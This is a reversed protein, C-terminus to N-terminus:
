ITGTADQGGEEPLPRWYIGGTRKLLHADLLYRRLTEQKHFRRTIMMNVAAESYQKGAEFDDALWRLIVGREEHDMPIRKLRKGHQDEKLYKHLTRTEFDEIEQGDVVVANLDDLYTRRLEYQVNGAVIAETILGAEKLRRLHHTVATERMDLLQALEVATYPRNATLGLIKLREPQGAARFFHMLADTQFGEM